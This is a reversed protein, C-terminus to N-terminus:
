GAILMLMVMPVTMRVCFNREREMVQNNLRNYFVFTIMMAQCAAATPQSLM